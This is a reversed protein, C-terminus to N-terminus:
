TKLRAVNGSEVVLPFSFIIVVFVDAASAVVDVILLSTMLVVVDCTLGVESSTSLLM